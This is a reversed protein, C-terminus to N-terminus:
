ELKRLGRRFKDYCSRSCDLYYSILYKDGYSSEFSVVITKNGKFGNISMIHQRKLFDLENKINNFTLRVRVRIFDSSLNHYYSLQKIANMFDTNNNFIYVGSM